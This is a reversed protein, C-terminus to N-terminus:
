AEGGAPRRRCHRASPADRREVCAVVALAFVCVNLTVPNFPAVLFAPSTVAVAVAALPMAALTVWVPWRWHWGVIMALGLGVEAGGVALLVARAASAPVGGRILMALEDAQRFLLKPVIGQYLWVFALVVRAVAYALGCRMSAAPDIGREVWLRLRDFSWATAWGMLPRFVWRDFRRGVGGFRVDYDYRTLFRVGQGDGRPVYKWYGSGERILSKPDDSWFKLASTRAGGPDDHGGVTEGEGRVELGLGIRTAYRFRQPEAPEPRPLLYDIETFRLDWRRHLEPTQSLEWVRGIPGRVDIEVYISQAHGAM